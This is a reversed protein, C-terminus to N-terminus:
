ITKFGTKKDVNKSNKGHSIFYIIKCQLSQVNSFKFFESFQFNSIKHTKKLNLVTCSSCESKSVSVFLM